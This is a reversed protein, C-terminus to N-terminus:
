HSTQAAGSFLMADITARHLIGLAEPHDLCALLNFYLLKFDSRQRNILDSQEASLLSLGAKPNNLLQAANDTIVQSANNTIM